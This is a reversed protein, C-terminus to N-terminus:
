RISRRSSAAPFSPSIGPVLDAVVEGSARGGLDVNKFLPAIPSNADIVIRENL